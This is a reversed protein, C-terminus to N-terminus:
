LYLRAPQRQKKKFAEVACFVSFAVSNLNKKDPPVTNEGRLVRLRFNLIVGIVAKRGFDPHWIGKGDIEQVFNAAKAGFPAEPEVAWGSL